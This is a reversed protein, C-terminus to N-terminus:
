RVGRVRASAWPRCGLMTLLPDRARHRAIGLSAWEGVETAGGGYVVTEKTAKGLELDAAIRSEVISLRLELLRQAEPQVATEYGRDGFPM